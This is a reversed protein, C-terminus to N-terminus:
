EPRRLYVHRHGDKCEYVILGSRHLKQLTKTVTPRTACVAEALQQHSLRLDLLYLGPAVPQGFREAVLTLIGVVRQEVQPRARVASWASLWGALRRLKGALEAAAAAGEPWPSVSVEAEGLATLAAYCPATPRGLAVDGPGFLGLLADTGDPQLSRLAVVGSRVEVVADEGAEIVEWPRFRRRRAVAPRSAQALRAAAQELDPPSAGPPLALEAGGRLAALAAEGSCDWAVWPLGLGDAAAAAAAADGEGELAAVLGAPRLGGGGASAPGVAYGAAVLRAM